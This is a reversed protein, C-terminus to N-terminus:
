NKPTIRDEIWQPGLNPIDIKFMELCILPYNLFPCPTQIIAFTCAQVAYEKIEKEVPQLPYGPFTGGCESAKALIAINLNMKDEGTYYGTPGCGFLLFLVLLSIYKM